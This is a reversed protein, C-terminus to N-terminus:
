LNGINGKVKEPKFDTLGLAVTCDIYHDKDVLSLSGFLGVKITTTKNISSLERYM